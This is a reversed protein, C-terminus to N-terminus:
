LTRFIDFCATLGDGAIVANQEKGIFASVKKTADKLAAASRARCCAGVGGLQFGTPGSDKPEPQLTLRDKDYETQEPSGPQSSAADQGDARTLSDKEMGPRQYPDGGDAPSIEGGHCM